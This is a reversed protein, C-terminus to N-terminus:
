GEKSQLFPCARSVMNLLFAVLYLWARNAVLISLSSHPGVLAGLCFAHYVRV